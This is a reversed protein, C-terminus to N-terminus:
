EQHVGGCNCRFTAIAITDWELTITIDAVEYTTGDVLWDEFHYGADPTASLNVEAGKDYSYIGVDPSVTGRGSKYIELTVKEVEQVFTASVSKDRDMVVSVNQSDSYNSGDLYWAEFGWGEAPTASLLVTTGEIYNHNGVSPSVSGQGTPQAMTLTFVTPPEEVFFAKATKSANMTITIQESGSFFEGDIQWFDFDWGDSPTAALSVESGEEYVSNGVAPEVDGSGSPELMTLTHTKRVFIARVNRDTNMTLEAEHETSYVADEVLWHEFLWGEAPTAQLTLSKGADYKHDGVAPAVAGQGIPEHMPLTVSAVPEENFFAKVIKDADMFLETEAESSYFVGDVQWRDFEWGETPTASLGVLTSYDFQYEGPEPSVSGEGEEDEMTLTVPQRSFFAKITKESDLVLKTEKENSYFEEDVEWRDFDWGDDPVALLDVSTNILHKHNGPLPQVEGGEDPELMTLTVTKFICGTSLFVFSIAAVFIMLKHFRLKGNRYTRM